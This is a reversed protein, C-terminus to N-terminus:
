MFTVTLRIFLRGRADICPPHFLDSDVEDMVGVEELQYADALDIDLLTCPNGKGATLMVSFARHSPDNTTLRWSGEGAIRLTWSRGFAPMVIDVDEVHSYEQFSTFHEIHGEAIFRAKCDKSDYSITLFHSGPEQVILLDEMLDIVASAPPAAPAPESPPDIHVLLNSLQWFRCQGILEPTPTVPVVGFSLWDLILAWNAPNSNIIARGEEDQAYEWDDSYMRALVSDPEASFIAFPVSGRLHPESSGRVAYTFQRCDKRRRKIAQSAAAMAAQHEQQFSESLLAFEARVDGLAAAQSAQAAKEAQAPERKRENSLASRHEAEQQQMSQRSEQGMQELWNM